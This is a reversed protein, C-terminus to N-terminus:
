NTRHSWTLGSKTQGKPYNILFFINQCTAATIKTNAFIFSYYTFSFIEGIFFRYQYNIIPDALKHLYFLFFNHELNRLPLQWAFLVYGYLIPRQSFNTRREAAQLAM